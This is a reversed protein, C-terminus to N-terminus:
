NGAAGNTVSKEVEEVGGGTEGEKAEGGTTGLDTAHM